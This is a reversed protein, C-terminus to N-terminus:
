HAQGDFRESKFGTKRTLVVYATALFNPRAAPYANRGDIGIEEAIKTTYRLM